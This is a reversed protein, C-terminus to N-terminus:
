HCAVRSQGCSMRYGVNQLSCIEGSPCEDSAVHCGKLRLWQMSICLVWRSAQAPCSLWVYKVCEARIKFGRLWGGVTLLCRGGNPSDRIEHWVWKVLRFISVAAICLINRPVFVIQLEIRGDIWIRNQIEITDFIDFDKDSIRNAFKDNLIERLKPSVRGRMPLWKQKRDLQLMTQSIEVCFGDHTAKLLTHYSLKTAYNNFRTNSKTIQRQHSTTLLSWPFPLVKIIAWCVTQSIYVGSNPDTIRFEPTTSM